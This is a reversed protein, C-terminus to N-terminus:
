LKEVRLLEVDARSIEYIFLYGKLVNIALHSDSNAKEFRLIETRKKTVPDYEIIRNNRFLIVKGDWYSIIRERRSTRILTEATENAIDIELLIDSRHRSVLSSTENRVDSGFNKGLLLFRGPVSSRYFHLFEYENPIEIKIGDTSEFSGTRGQAWTSNAFYINDSEDLGLYLGCIVFGDQVLSYHLSHYRGDQMRNVGIILSNKDDIRETSLYNNGYTIRGGFYEFEMSEYDIIDRPRIPEGRINNTSLTYLDQSGGHRNQNIYITDVLVGLRGIPVFRDTAGILEGTYIIQYLTSGTVFFVFEDNVAIKSVANVPYVLRDEQTATNLARIGKTASDFYFIYNGYYATYTGKSIETNLVGTLVQPGRLERETPRPPGIRICSSCTLLVLIVSTIITGRKM